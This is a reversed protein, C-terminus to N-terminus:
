SKETKTTPACKIEISLKNSAASYITTDGSKTYAHVKFFYTTGGELDEITKSCEQNSKVTAVKEWKKGDKSVYVTYGVVKEDKLWRLKATEPDKSIVYLLKPAEAETSTTYSKSYGTAYVKEENTVFAKVSFKCETAEPLNTVTFETKDTTGVKVWKGNERMYIYYGEAGEFADWMLTISNAERSDTTSTPASMDYNGITEYTIKDLEKTTKYDCIKCTLDASGTKLLTPEQTIKSKFDHELCGITFTLYNSNKYNGTATNIAKVFVSYSGEGLYNTSIKKSLSTVTYIKANDWDYKGTKQIKEAIYIKYTDANKGGSTWKLNINSDLGYATKDKAFSLEPKTITKNGYTSWYSRSATSGRQKARTARNAPIEFYYCWYYAADYAGGSSNPVKKLYKYIHNYTSSKLEHELFSLQGEVSLYNLGKKSCYNKLNRLRSGNWMCLGGSQLGNSDRIITGPKFNSEKEINAMIGCAAASNFGLNKTLFTFVETKKTNSAANASLPIVTLLTILTMAILVVKMLAKKM